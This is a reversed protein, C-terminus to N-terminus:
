FRGAGLARTEIVGFEFAFKWSSCNSPAFQWRLLSHLERAVPEYAQIELQDASLIRLSQIQTRAPYREVIQGNEPNM